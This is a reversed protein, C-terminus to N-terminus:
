FHKRTQIRFDYNTKQKEWMKILQELNNNINNIIIRQLDM